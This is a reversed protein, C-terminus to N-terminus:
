VAVVAQRRAFPSLTTLAMHFVGPERGSPPAYLRHPWARPTFFSPGGTLGANLAVADLGNCLM